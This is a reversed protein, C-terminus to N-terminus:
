KYNDIFESVAATFKDAENETPFHGSKEFIILKKHTTNVLGFADKGLQPPVVLDYKGWLFLCPITIKNLQNTFSTTEIENYFNPNNIYTYTTSIIGTILDQQYMIGIDQLTKGAPKQLVEDELLLREASHAQKNIERGTHMDINNTDIRGAYEIIKKWKEKSNNQAIQENGINIM